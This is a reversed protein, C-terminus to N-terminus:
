ASKLLATEADDWKGQAAYVKGELFHAVPAEPTKQLQNRVRQFAADFDKTQIDLDVLSPLPCFAKRRWNSRM